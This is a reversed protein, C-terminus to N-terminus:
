NNGNNNNDIETRSTIYYKSYWIVESSGFMKSVYNINLKWYKLISDKICLTNYLTYGLLTFYNVMEKYSRGLSRHLM